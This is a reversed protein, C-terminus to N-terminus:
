DLHYISNSTLYSLKLYYYYTTTIDSNSTYHDVIHVTRYNLWNAIKM